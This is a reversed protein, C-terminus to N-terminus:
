TAKYLNVRRAVVDYMSTSARCLVVAWSFFLCLLLCVLRKGWTGRAGCLWFAECTERQTGIKARGAGEQLQLGAGGGRLTEM